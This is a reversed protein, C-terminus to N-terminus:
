AELGYVAYYGTMNGGSAIFTFSDFSSAVNHHLLQTDNETNTVYDPTVGLGGGWIRTRTAIQPSIFNFTRSFQDTGSNIYGLDFKTQSSNARNATTNGHTLVLTADFYQTITNDSGSARM